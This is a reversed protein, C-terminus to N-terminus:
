KDNDFVLGLKTRIADMTRMIALTEDLPMIESELKSPRMCDVVEQIEYEFGQEDPYPFSKQITEGEKYRHLEASSAALFRPVTTRGESGIIEAM